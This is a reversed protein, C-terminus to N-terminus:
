VKILQQVQLCRGKFRLRGSGLVVWANTAMEQTHFEIYVGCDQDGGIRNSRSKTRLSGIWWFRFNRIGYEFLLDGLEDKDALHPDIQFLYFSTKASSQSFATGALRLHIYRKTTM